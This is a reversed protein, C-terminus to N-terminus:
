PGCIPLLRPSHPPSLPSNPHPDSNPSAAAAANARRATTMLPISLTFMLAIRASRLATHRYTLPAPRLASFTSHGITPGSTLWPMELRPSVPIAHSVALSPAIGSGERLPLNPSHSLQPPLLNSQPLPLPSPSLHLTGPAPSISSSPPRARSRGLLSPLPDMRGPPAFPARSPPTPTHAMLRIRAAPKLSALLTFAIAVPSSFGSPRPSNASATDARTGPYYAIAGPSPTPM